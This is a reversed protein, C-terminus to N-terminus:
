PLKKKDLEENHKSDNELEKWRESSCHCYFTHSCQKCNHRGYDLVSGFFFRACVLPWFDYTEWWVESVQIDRCQELNSVNSGLCIGAHGVEARKWECQWFCHHQTTGYFTMESRHPTGNCCPVNHCSVALCASVSVFCINGHWASM